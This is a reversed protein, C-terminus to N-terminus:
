EHLDLSAGHRVNGLCARNPAPIPFPHPIQQLEGNALMRSINESSVEPFMAHIDKEIEESDAYGDVRVLVREATWGSQEGHTWERGLIVLQEGVLWYADVTDPTTAEEGPQTPATSADSM